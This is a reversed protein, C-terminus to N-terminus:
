HTEAPTRVACAILVGRHSRWSLRYRSGAGAAGEVRVRAGRWHLEVHWPSAFTEGRDTKFVAEKLMWLALPPPMLGPRAELAHWERTTLVPRLRNPALPRDSEVDVGVSGCCAMEAVAAIGIGDAHAVSLSLGLEDSGRGLVSFCPAGRVDHHIVIEHYAPAMGRRRMVDGVALKAACRGAVWDRRRSETPLEHHQKREDPTLLDLLAGRPGGSLPDPWVLRVTPREAPPATRSRAPGNSSLM